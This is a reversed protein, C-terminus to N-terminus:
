TVAVYITLPQALQPLDDAVVMKQMSSFPIRRDHNVHTSSPMKGGLKGTGAAEICCICEAFM